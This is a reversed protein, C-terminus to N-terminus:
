IKKVANGACSFNKLSKQATRTETILTAGPINSAAVTYWAHDLQSLLIDAYKDRSKQQRFLEEENPLVVFVNIHKPPRPINGMIANRDGSDKGNYEFHVEVVATKEDKAYAELDKWWGVKSVDIGYPYESAISLKLETALLKKFTSKGAAYPGTIINLENFKKEDVKLM